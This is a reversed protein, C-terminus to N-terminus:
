FNLQFFFLILKEITNNKVDDSRTCWIKHLSPNIGAWNKINSSRELYTEAPTAVKVDKEVSWFCAFWWFMIRLGCSLVIKFWLKSVLCSCWGKVRDFRWVKANENQAAMAGTHVSINFGLPWFSEWEFSCSPFYQLIKYFSNHKRTAPHSVFEGLSHKAQTWHSPFSQM